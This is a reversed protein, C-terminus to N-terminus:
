KRWGRMVSPPRRGLPIRWVCTRAIIWQPRRVRLLPLVPSRVGTTLTDAWEVSALVATGTFHNGRRTIIQRSPRVYRPPRGPSISRQGFMLHTRVRVEKSGTWPGEKGAPGGAVVVWEAGEAETRSAPGNLTAELQLRTPGSGQRKRASGSPREPHRGSRLRIRHARQLRCSWSTICRIGRSASGRM